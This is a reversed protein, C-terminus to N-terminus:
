QLLAIKLKEQKILLLLRSLSLSTPLSLIGATASTVTTGVGRRQLGELDSKFVKVPKQGDCVIPTM